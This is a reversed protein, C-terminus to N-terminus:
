RTDEVVAAVGHSPCVDDVSGVVDVVDVVACDCRGLDDNVTMWRIM